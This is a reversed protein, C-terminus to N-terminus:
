REALLAMAILDLPWFLAASFAVAVDGYEIAQDGTHLDDILHYAFDGTAAAGYLLLAALWVRLPYPPPDFALKFGNVRYFDGAYETKRGSYVQRLVDVYERLQRLPRDFEYGHWAAITPNAIGLGLILRGRSLDNLTAAQIALSVPSRGFMHYIATGLEIRGTQAAMASLLVIPDRSNSEGKWVCGFGRQEALM